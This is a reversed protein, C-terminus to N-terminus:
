VVLVVERGLSVRNYGWQLGPLARTVRDVGLLGFAVSIAMIYDWWPWRLGAMATIKGWYGPYLGFLVSSGGLAVRFAWM